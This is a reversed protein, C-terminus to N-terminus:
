TNRLWNERTTLLEHKLIRLYNGREKRGKWLPAVIADVVGARGERDAGLGGPDGALDSHGVGLGGGSAGELGVCVDGGVGLQLDDIRGLLQVLLAGLLDEQGHSAPGLGDEPASGCGPHALRRSM